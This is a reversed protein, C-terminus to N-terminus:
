KITNGKGYLEDDIKRSSLSVGPLTGSVSLIPDEELSLQNTKIGLSEIIKTLEDYFTKLNEEFIMIRHKKYNTGEKQSESIILYKDGEKSEKLDLFYTRSGALIKHTVLEHQRKYM